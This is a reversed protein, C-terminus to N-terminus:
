SFFSTSVMIKTGAILTSYAEFFFKTEFDGSFTAYQALQQQLADSDIEISQILTTNTPKYVSLINFLLRGFTAINSGQHPTGM